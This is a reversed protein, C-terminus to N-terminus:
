FKDEKMLGDLVKEIAGLIEDKKIEKYIRNAMKEDYVHVLENRLIILKALTEELDESVKGEKILERFCSKPSNCEIGQLRLFEKSVKWMSEFTYEFRKTTIEVLFEDKFLSDLAPNTVIEKFKEFSKRFRELSRKFKEM